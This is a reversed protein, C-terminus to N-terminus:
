DVCPDGGFAADCFSAKDAASAKASLARSAYLARCQVSNGSTEAAKVKFATLDTDDGVGSLGDKCQKVCETQMVPDDNSDLVPDGNKDLVPVMEDWNGQEDYKESCATKALRCYTVCNDGCVNAGLVAAHGCHASDVLLGVYAHTFRCGITDLGVLTDQKGREAKIGLDSNNCYDDCHSPGDIYDKCAVSMVRCYDPCNIDSRCSEQPRLGALVCNEASPDQAAITAARLRCAITDGDNAIPSTFGYTAEGKTSPIEPVAECANVCDSLNQVADYDRIIKNQGIETNRFPNASQGGCAGLYLTCYGECYASTEKDKCEAAGGPGAASCLLPKDEPANPADELKLRRCAITNSNVDTSANSGVSILQCAQMCAADSPYQRLSPGNCTTNMSDCYERCDASYTVDPVDAVSQCSLGCLVLSLSVLSTSVLWRTRYASM